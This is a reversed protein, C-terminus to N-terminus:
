KEALDSLLHRKLVARRWGGKEPNRKSEGGSEAPSM